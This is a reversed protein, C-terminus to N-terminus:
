KEKAPVAPAKDADKRTPITEPAKLAGRYLWQPTGLFRIDRSDRSNRDGLRQFRLELTKRRIVPENSPPVEALSWGNSLGSVYITYYTADQPVDDWIAVGTVPKPFADPKSPPIPDAAMTVSNKIDQYGTPDELKGIAEQVKPLVQDHLVLPKEKDAIVLEFDPIFTRPKGTKNVVQYWLYWCLRRGRGPVDVTILRPDKFRFDLVWIGDKDEVNGGPAVDRENFGAGGTQAVAVPLAVALGLVLALGGRYAKSRTM